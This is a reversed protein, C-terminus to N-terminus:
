GWLSQMTNQVAPNQSLSGLASGIGALNTGTNNYAQQTGAGPAAQGTAGALGSLSQVQEKYAQNQFQGGFSALAQASLGSGTFGQAAMNRTLAQESAAMTAGYGPLGTVSGPNKLLEMLQDGAAARHGSDGWPDAQKAVNGAQSLGYLNGALGTLGGLASGLGSLSGLGGAGAAYSSDMAANEATTLPTGAMTGVGNTVEGGIPLSEGSVWGGTAATNAATGGTALSEGSVWGPAGGTALAEGSVWGEAGAGAAAGAGGVAGAGGAASAGGAADTALASGMGNALFSDGVMGAEAATGASGGMAGLAAGGTIIAAGAGIVYPAYKSFWSEPKTVGSHTTGNTLFQEYPDGGDGQGRNANMVTYNGQNDRNLLKGDPMTVERLGADGLEDSSYRKTDGGGAKYLQDLQEYSYGGAMEQKQMGTIFDEWSSAM